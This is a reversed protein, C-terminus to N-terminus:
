SHCPFLNGCYYPWLFTYGETVAGQFGSHNRYRFAIEVVGPQESASLALNITKLTADAAFALDVGGSRVSDLMLDAVELTAGPMASAAFTITASGSRATVDFALRTDTIDRAPNATPTIPVIPITTGSSGGGYAAIVM